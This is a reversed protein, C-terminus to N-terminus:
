RQTDDRLRQVDADSLVVGQVVGLLPLGDSEGVERRRPRVPELRLGGGDAMLEMETDPGIGLAVRLSKPIVIRGVRDVIVRM